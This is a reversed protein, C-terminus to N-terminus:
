KLSYGNILQSSNFCIRIPTTSSNPNPAALHSIYFKPKGSEDWAERESQPLERAVNRKLMDMIQGWYMKMWEPNKKLRKITSKLM